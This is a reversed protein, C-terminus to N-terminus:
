LEAYSYTRGNEVAGVVLRDVIKGATVAPPVLQGSAHFGAFMDVSPLRERPQSRMYVQMPTDIIGPRITICTLGSAGHEAAVVQTLMELGAKGICYVGAGPIPRAAAGSSVNVLRRDGPADAFAQVFADAVVIPAALNVALSGLAENTDVGGMTGAPGAVAANNIVVIANPRQAKLDDFLAAVVPALAGVDALDAAVLRFGRSALNAAASRGVGVVDFGRELLTSALAAGLGRSVGTVVAIREAM